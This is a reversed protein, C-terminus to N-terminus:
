LWRSGLVTLNVREIHLVNAHITFLLLMTRWKCSVFFRFYEHLFLDPTYIWNWARKKSMKQVSLSSKCLYATIICTFQQHIWQYRVTKALLDMFYVYSDHPVAQRASLVRNYAGEMFSQELEVAHKICAHDHAEIPLLELEAFCM